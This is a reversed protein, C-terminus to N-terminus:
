GCATQEHRGDVNKGGGAEGEVVCVVHEYQPEIYTHHVQKSLLTVIWWDVVTSCQVNSSKFMNDAFM